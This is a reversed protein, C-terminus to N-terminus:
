NWRREAGAREKEHERLLREIEEEYRKEVDQRMEWAMLTDSLRIELGKRPNGFAGADVRTWTCVRGAYVRREFSWPRWFKRVDVTMEYLPDWSYGGPLQKCSVFRYSPGDVWISLARGLQILVLAAVAALLTYLVIM